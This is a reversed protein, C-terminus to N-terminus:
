ASRHHWCPNEHSHRPRGRAPVATWQPPEKAHVVRCPRLAPLGERGPRVGKGVVLHSNQFPERSQGFCGPGSACDRLGLGRGRTQHLGYVKLLGDLWPSAMARFTGARTSGGGSGTAATAASTGSASARSTKALACNLSAMARFFHRRRPWLRQPQRPTPAATPKHSSPM